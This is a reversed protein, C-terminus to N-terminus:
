EEWWAMFEVIARSKQIDADYDTTEAEDFIHQVTVGGATGGWRSLAARVQAAVLLASIATDGYCNVQIRSRVLDINGGMAATRLTSVRTYALQPYAATQDIVEHYIRTGVLDTLGTFGSLRPYLAAEIM